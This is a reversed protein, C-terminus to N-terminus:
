NKKIKSAEIVNGHRQKKFSIEAVNTPITPELMPPRTRLLIGVEIGDKDFIALKMIAAWKSLELPPALFAKLWFPPISLPNKYGASQAM